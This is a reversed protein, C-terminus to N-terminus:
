RCHPLFIVYFCNSTLNKRIPHNKQKCAGAGNGLYRKVSPPFAPLPPSAPASGLCDPFSQGPPADLSHRKMQSKTEEAK